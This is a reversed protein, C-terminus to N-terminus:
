EEERIVSTIKLANYKKSIGPKGTFKFIDGVMINLDSSVYSDLRIVDGKNLELFEKVTIYTKGLIGKVPIESIQLRNELLAKYNDQEVSKHTSYLHKTNLLDMLPEIVLYPICINLMGETEGINLNLTVLAIMENPEIIEAFQMNTEIRELIPTVNSINQWPEAMLSVIHELTNNLLNKEIETFDRLEKLCKGEGGLIRDIISYGVKTSMKVLISGKLPSADVVGLIVPNSLSNTFEKYTLAESNIVEIHASTRLTASLFSGLSRAYNEYILELTKLHEKAFKSPRKFDYEKIKHGNKNEQSTDAQEMDFSGSNLAGLLEDIENQSLVDAM